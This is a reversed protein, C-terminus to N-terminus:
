NKVPKEPKVVRVPAQDGDESIAISQQKINEKVRTQALASFSILLIFITILRM